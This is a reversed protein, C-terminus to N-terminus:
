ALFCCKKFKYGSGCPCLDNRGIRVAENKSLNIEGHTYLWQGNAYQFFSLETHPILRDRDLFWARFAVQSSDHSLREHSFVELKVWHTSQASDTLEQESLHTRFDPHHTQYLYDGRGLCFATFRSRMLREADDPQNIGLIYPLCCNALTAGSGCFCLQSPPNSRTV